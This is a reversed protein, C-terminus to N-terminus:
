EGEKVSVVGMFSAVNEGKDDYFVHHKGKIRFGAADVTVDEVWADEGPFGDPYYKIVYKKM